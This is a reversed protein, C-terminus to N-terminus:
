VVSKRDPSLLLSFSLFLSFPLSLPHWGGWGGARLEWGLCGEGQRDRYTSPLSTVWRFRLIYSLLEMAKISWYVRRLMQENQRQTEREKGAGGTERERKRCWGDRERQEQVVRREEGRTM